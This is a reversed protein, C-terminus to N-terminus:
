DGFHQIAEAYVARTARATRAWSFLGARALSRDRCGALKAPRLVAERMAAIWGSADRPDLLVAGGAAVELIAAIRSAIVLAGCQMAELVPLGFGEYLSPYLVAVAASYLAPLDAEPVEGLLRLGPEPPPYKAGIAPRGVLVLDVPCTARVERWAQILMDLNKRPEFAGVYLFFPDGPGASRTPRFHAGAALPVARVRDPHLGFRDITERRVAETPTIVMGALGLQAPYPARRRVFDAGAPRVPDLWPSLDHVTMVAPLLPLWPVVFHTGHFVEAGTRRTERVAGCLWWRRDIWHAPPRGARLNRPSGPPMSFPQDSILFIDDEPFEAALAVSLERAYRAIGGSTHILPTADLAVIM